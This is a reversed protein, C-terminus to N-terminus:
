PNGATEPIRIMKLIESLKALIEKDKPNTAYAKELWSVATEYAATSKAKEERARTGNMISRANEDIGVGINYYCTAINVYAMLEAPALVIAENYSAIADTYRGTKQYILGKTYHFIQRDPNERIADELTLLAAATDNRTFYLDSLLLVLEHDDEYREIGEAMVKEAALTDGKQLHAKFLLHAVNASHRQDHLRGFYIIAKDWNKSEFAALATNYLLNTDAQLSFVPKESIALAQEFARLAEAYKKSGFHREGLVQFDNALLIYRPALQKEFRGSKDLALTHNFSELTVYLQDPYLESLKRDNKRIGERYAIQSLVGRTYWTKPWQAAEKDDILEEVEIKAEAYKATEILHYVAILKRKQLPQMVACGGFVITLLLILLLNKM